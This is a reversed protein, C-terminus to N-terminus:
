ERSTPLVTAGAREAAAATVMGGGNPQPINGSGVITSLVGVTGLLVVVAAIAIRYLLNRDSLAREMRLWM